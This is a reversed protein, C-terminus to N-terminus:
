LKSRVKFDFVDFRSYHGSYDMNQREKIAMLPDVDAYIIGEEEVLPGAVVVGKPNVICSGGNFIFKEPINQMQQKFPFEKEDLHSFDSPRIIGSASIVWYRGELAIFKSIDRCLGISGPWIAVHLVEEQRHLSARALPLWNEWCNLGGVMGIPTQVCKLGEGDGDAWVLREDFTPKLKRHRSIKGDPSITIFTCYISGGHKEAIGGMLFVQLEMALSIMQKALDGNLDVSEKWYKAYATKNDEDNWAAGNCVSVWSPYGPLLTEGWCILKAGNKHAERIWLSLKEWTKQADLMIPAIQVAAVKM